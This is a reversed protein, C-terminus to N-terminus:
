RTFDVKRKSPVTFYLQLKTLRSKLVTSQTSWLFKEIDEFGGIDLGQQKDPNLLASGVLFSLITKLWINGPKEPQLHRVNCLWLWLRSCNKRHELSALFIEVM